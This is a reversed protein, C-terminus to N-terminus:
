DGSQKLRFHKKLESSVLYWRRSIKFGQIDGKKIKRILVNRSYFYTESAEKLSIVKSLDEPIYWYPKPILFKGNSLGIRYKM